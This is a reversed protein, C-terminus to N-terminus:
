NSLLPSRVTEITTDPAFGLALTVLVTTAAYTAYISKEWGEPETKHGEWLRAQMSQSEPQGGGMSRRQVGRRLPGNVLSQRRFLLSANM